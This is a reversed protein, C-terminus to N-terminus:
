DIDKKFQEFNFLLDKVNKDKGSNNFIIEDLRIPNIIYNTNKYKLLEFNEINKFLNIPDIVLVKKNFLLSTFLATSFFWLVYKSEKIFNIIDWKEFKVNNSKINKKYFEEDSRPHIKFIFKYEPNKIVLWDIFNFFIKLKKNTLNQIFPQEIILIQNKISLEKMSIYNSFYIRSLELVWYNKNIWYNDTHDKIIRNKFLNIFTNLIWYLKFYLIFIWILSIKRKEIIDINYNKNWLIFWIWDSHLLLEKNYLYYTIYDFYWRWYRLFVTNKNPINQLDSINNIHYLKFNYKKWRIFDNELLDTYVVFINAINVMRWALFDIDDIYKTYPAITIYINKKNINM